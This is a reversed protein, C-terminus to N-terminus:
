NSGKLNRQEYEGGRDGERSKRWTPDRRQPVRSSDRHHYVFKGMRNFLILLPSTLQILWGCNFLSLWLKEASLHSFTNIFLQTLLM